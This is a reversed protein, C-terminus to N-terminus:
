TSHHQGRGAADNANKFKFFLYIFYIYTTKNCSKKAPPTKWVCSWVCSRRCCCAVCFCLLHPFLLPDSDDDVFFFLFCVWLLSGLFLFM